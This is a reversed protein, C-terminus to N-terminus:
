VCVVTAEKGEDYPTPVRWAIEIKGHQGGCGPCAELRVVRPYSRRAETTVVRVVGDIVPCGFFGLKSTPAVTRMTPSLTQTQTPM